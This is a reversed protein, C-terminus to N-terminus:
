GGLDPGEEKREVEGFPGQSNVRSPRKRSYLFFVSSIDSVSKMSLKMTAWRRHTYNLTEINRKAILASFDSGRAGRNGL